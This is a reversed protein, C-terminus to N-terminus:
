AAETAVAGYETMPVRRPISIILDCRATQKFDSTGQRVARMANCARFIFCLRGGISFRYVMCVLGKRRM